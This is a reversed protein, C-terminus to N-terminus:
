RTSYLDSDDESETSDDKSEEESDEDFSEDEKLTDDLIERPKSGEAAGVVGRDELIDMLRAARSYGIRLKRQLYSTSAKGAQIVEERAQEYLPDEDDEDGINGSFLVDPAETATFDIINPVDNEHHKRIHKVIKKLETESIFPAQVRIPKPSDSALYLMDGKGLLKEAGSSDLITRSDVLSPVQLAIRTPINTKILGTIVNVSPRQTSLILHIGVARSKQALRVISAELEKPYESMIDAIEDIIIVIYPMSEPVDPADSPDTGEKKLKLLAPGLINSHYSNIDRVAESELVEYRREMEKGAWKLALIAKKANTIVPSLLHPIEKYLTLEVRKPDIMLLKLQEPGNKYLLSTILSHILVSKGSGTTGAILCHPMNALNAFHVKGEIDKGLGVILPYESNKFQSDGLISAMGITAISTNPVEIGVLARGPIPAEIRIPHAALALELNNQLGLIRQLRVGEAPKLAYRTVTPGISVEDMEVEIGFNSFTRKIQNANAKVDGVNAKGRDKELLSLPPPIYEDGTPLIRFNPDKEADTDNKKSFLKLGFTRGEVKPQPEDDDESKASDDEYEEDGDEIEDEADDYDDFLNEDEEFYDEDDKLKEKRKFIGTISKIPNFSFRLDFLILVSIIILAILIVGTAKDFLSSLPSSIYKGVLGGGSEFILDIFALSSIFFLISGFIRLGGLQKRLSGAYSIAIMLFLLPILYYGIGFLMNLSTFVSSGVVGAWSLAALSFFIALVFFFIAWVGHLTEESLGDFLSPIKFKKKKKRKAM